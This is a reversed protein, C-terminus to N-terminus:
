RYRDQNTMLFVKVGCTEGGTVGPSEFSAAAQLLEDNESSVASDSDIVTKSKTLITSFVSYAQAPIEKIM